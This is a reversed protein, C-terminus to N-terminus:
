DFPKELIKMNQNLHRNLYEHNYKFRGVLYKTNFNNQDSYYENTEYGGMAAEYDSFNQHKKVIKDKKEGYVLLYKYWKRM